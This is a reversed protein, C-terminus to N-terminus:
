LFVRLCNLSFVLVAQGKVRGMFLAIVEATIEVKWEEGFSWDSLLM